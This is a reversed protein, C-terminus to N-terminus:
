LCARSYAASATTLAVYQAQRARAAARHHRKRRRTTLSCAANWTVLCCRREMRRDCPQARVGHAGDENFAEAAADGAGPTAASVIQAKPLAYAHEPTAAAIATSREYWAFQAQRARAAAWHHRERRRTPLSCAANWAVVAISWGDAVHIIVFVVLVM